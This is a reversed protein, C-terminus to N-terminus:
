WHKVIMLHESYNGLIQWSEKRKMGEMLAINELAESGNFYKIFKYWLEKAKQDTIRKGIAAIYLSEEHSVKHPDAIIYYAYEKLHPANNFSPTRTAVPLPMKAFRCM